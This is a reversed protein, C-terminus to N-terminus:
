AQKLVKIFDDENFPKPLYGSMGVEEFKLESQESVEATLAVIRIPCNPFKKFIRKTVEYGDMDPMRIDMFVLDFMEPNFKELAETGNNAFQYNVGWKKFYQSIVLQNIMNDEVCLVRVHNLNGQPEAETETKDAPIEKSVEVPLVFFFESGVKIESEVLLEGGMLGVLEKSITLGLGSGGYNRATSIDEQEFDEFIKQQNEPSIGVGTDKVSFRIHAKDETRDALAITLTIGGKDTFKIGNGILNILVQSIRLSDGLIEVPVKPDIEQKIYLNKDSAQNLMSKKLGSIMEPLDFPSSEIKLKGARIRSFDLMDNVLSLLHKSSFSIANLNEVQSDMYPQTLLHDTLGIIANLPTRIEHSMSAMFEEKAASAKKLEDLTKVLKLENEKKDTINQITCSISEREGDRNCDLKSNMEVYITEKSDSNAKFEVNNIAKRTVLMKKWHTLVESLDSKDILESPIFEDSHTLLSKKRKVDNIQLTNFFNESYTLSKQEFDYVMNVVKAMEQAEILQEQTRKIVSNQKKFRRIVWYAMFLLILSALLILSMMLINDKHTEYLAVKEQQINEITRDKQDLIERIREILVKSTSRSEEFAASTEAMSHSLDELQELLLDHDVHSIETLHAVSDSLETIFEKQKQFLGEQNKYFKKVKKLGKSLINENGGVSVDITDKQNYSQDNQAAMLEKEPIESIPKEKEELTLELKSESISDINIISYATIKMAEIRTHSPVNILGEEGSDYYHGDIIVPLNRWGAGNNDLLAIETFDAEVLLNEAILLVNIESAEKDIELTGLEVNYSEIRFASANIIESEYPITFTFKGLNDTYTSQIRQGVYSIELHSLPLENKDKVQGIVHKMTADRVMIALQGNAYRWTALELGKKLIRIKEPSHTTANFGFTLMGEADSIAEFTGDMVVKVGEVPLRTEQHVVQGTLNDSISLGSAIHIASTCFLLCLYVPWNSILKKM